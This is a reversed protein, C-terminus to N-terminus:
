MNNQNYRPPGTAFIRGDLSVQLELLGPAPLVTSEDTGMGLCSPFLHVEAVVLFESFKPQDDIPFPASLEDQQSVIRVPDAFPDVLLGKDRAWACNRVCKEM